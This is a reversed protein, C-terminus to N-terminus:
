HLETSLQVRRLKGHFRLTPTWYSSSGSTQRLFSLHFRIDESCGDPWLGYVDILGKLRSGNKSACSELSPQGESTGKSRRICIDLAEAQLSRPFKKDPLGLFFLKVLQFRLVIIIAIVIIIIIVVIQAGLM